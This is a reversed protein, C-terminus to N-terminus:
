FGRTRMDKDATWGARAYMEIVKRAFQPASIHTLAWQRAQRGMRNCLAKDTVVQMLRRCFAEQDDLATVFGTEGEQVLWPVEGCATSVIPLGCALGESVSNPSGEIRSCHVLIDAVQLYEEVKMTVGPLAVEGTLDLKNVLQELKSRERGEGLITLHVALGNNKLYQVSQIAWDWRKYPELRGVGILKVTSTSSQSGSPQFRDTDVGNWIVEVRRPQFISTASEAATQAPHNNACLTEPFRQSLYGNLRGANKVERWFTSQITGIATAGCVQAMCWVPFNLHFDYAHIISPQLEYALRMLRNLRMISGGSRSVIRCPLELDNLTNLHEGVKSDTDPFSVIVTEMGCDRISEALLIAQREIGGLGLQGLVYMIM